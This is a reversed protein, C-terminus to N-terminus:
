ILVLRRVSHRTMANLIATVSRAMLGDAKFTKGRGIASIVTDQGAVAESLSRGGDVGGEIVRLCSHRATVRAQTRALVTVDHGAALAQTVLQRGTGGTGGLVLLKMRCGLM